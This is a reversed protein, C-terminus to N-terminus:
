SKTRNGANSHSTKTQNYMWEIHAAVSRFHSDAEKKLATFFRESLKITRRTDKM